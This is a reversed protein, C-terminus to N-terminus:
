LNDAFQDGEIVAALMVALDLSEPRVINVPRVHAPLVDQRLEDHTCFFQDLLVLGARHGKRDLTVAALCAGEAIDVIDHVANKRHLRTAGM